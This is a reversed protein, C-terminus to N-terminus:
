GRAAAGTLDDCFFFVHPARREAPPLNGATVPRIRLGAPRYVVAAALRGNGHARGSSCEGRLSPPSKAALRQQSRQQDVVRLPPLRGRASHDSCGRCLFVVLSSHTPFFSHVKCNATKELLGAISSNRGRIEYSTKNPDRKLTRMPDRSCSHVKCNAPWFQANAPRNWRNNKGYLVFRLVSYPRTKM